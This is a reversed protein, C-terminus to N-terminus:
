SNRKYARLKVVTWYYPLTSHVAGRIGAREQTCVKVKLVRGNLISAEVVSLPRAVTMGPVTPKHPVNLSGLHRRSSFQGEMKPQVSFQKGYLITWQSISYNRPM